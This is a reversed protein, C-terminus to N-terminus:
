PAVEWQKMRKRVTGLARFLHIKVTGTKLNTASAIEELSMEEVFRLVFVARQQPSLGEVASWVAALKEKALLDEEATPAPDPVVPEAQDISRSGSFLRRWFELRRNRHYDRALNMAIRILWTTVSAEGRYGARVQYAKLFCEQTLTQAADPDRVMGLMLRFIRLRNREVVSDFDQLSPSALGDAQQVPKSGEDGIAGDLAQAMTAM